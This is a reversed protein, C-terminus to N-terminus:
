SFRIQYTINVSQNTQLQSTAYTNGAIITGATIASTAFLGINNITRNATVTNSALTGVFQLTKSSVASPTLSIRCGAADTLESDLGTANSAPVTGIGLAAHTPQKSGAVGGFSGVIGTEYGYNTIQNPVWGSDGVVKMEGNDHEVINLRYFGRVKVSDKLRKM